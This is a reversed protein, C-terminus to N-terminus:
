TELTYRDWNALTAGAEYTSNIFELLMEKPNNSKQILKYPLIFERLTEHYYAGKPKM